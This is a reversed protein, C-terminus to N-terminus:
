GVESQLFYGPKFTGGSTNQSRQQTFNEIDRNREKVERAANKPEATPFCGILATDLLQGLQIDVDHASADDQAPAALGLQSLRRRRNKSSKPLQSLVYHRLTLVQTYLRRLVPHDPGPPTSAAHEAGRKAKKSPGTCTHTSPKRKMSAAICRHPNNRSQAYAVLHYSIPRPPLDQEVPGVPSANRVHLEDRSTAVTKVALVEVGNM